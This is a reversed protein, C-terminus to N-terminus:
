KDKDHNEIRELKDSKVTKRANQRMWEELLQVHDGNVGHQMCLHIGEAHNALLEFINEIERTNRNVIRVIMEIDEKDNAFKRECTPHREELGDVRKNLEDFPKKYRQMARGVIGCVITIITLISVIFAAIVGGASVWEM